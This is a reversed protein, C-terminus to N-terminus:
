YIFRFVKFIFVDKSIEVYLTVFLVLEQKIEIYFSLNRSSQAFYASLYNNLMLENKLNTCSKEFLNKIENQYNDSLFQANPFLRELENKLKFYLEDM